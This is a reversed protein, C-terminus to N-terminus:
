PKEKKSARPRPNPFRGYATGDELWPPVMRDSARLNEAAAARFELLAKRARDGAQKDKSRLDRLMEFLASGYAVEEDDALHAMMFASGPKTLEAMRIYFHFIKRDELKLEEVLGQLFIESLDQRGADAATQALAGLVMGTPCRGREYNAIASISLGLRNAFAQQSEGLHVRLRRVSDVLRQM